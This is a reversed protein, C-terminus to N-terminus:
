EGILDPLEITSIECELYYMKHTTVRLAELALKCASLSQPPGWAVIDPGYRVIQRYQIANTPVTLMALTILTVINM